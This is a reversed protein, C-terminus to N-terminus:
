PKPIRLFDGATIRHNNLRNAKMIQRVPIRYTKSIHTLTEGRSVRHRLWSVAAAPAPDEKKAAAERTAPGRDLKQLAALKDPPAKVRYGKPVDRIRQHLAPNWEFFTARSVRLTSLLSAVSAARNLEWEELGFPPHYELDPFHSEREKVVELAALFEAYFNKSAFGFTPAQYNKIIAVLDSSGVQAVARAMGERGHNYATIALPWNGLVEYNRKLLRAAARTSEIPDKREDLTHTVRLFSRATSRMFQWMGLAGASSKAHINFSSEVLPLFAIEVPVNEERLIAQIREMYAESRELGEAFRERVGRQWRVRGDEKDYGQERLIKDREEELLKRAKPGEEVHVVRYIRSPQTPDHFVVEGIGYRTFVLKWFEVAGELGPLIAFTGEAARGSEARLFSASSVVLGILLFPLLLLTKLAFVMMNVDFIQGM